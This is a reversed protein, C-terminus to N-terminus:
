EGSGLVALGNDVMTQTSGPSNRLAQLRVVGEAPEAGGVLAMNVGADPQAGFVPMLADFFGVGLTTETGRPRAEDKPWFSAM